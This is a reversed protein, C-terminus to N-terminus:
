VSYITPLTLHTYSVASIGSPLFFVYTLPAFVLLEGIPVLIVRTVAFVLVLALALLAYITGNQVADAALFAAITWDM